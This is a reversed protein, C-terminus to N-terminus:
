PRGAVATAGIAESACCRHGWKWGLLAIPVDLRQLDGDIAVMGVAGVCCAIENRYVGNWTKDLTLARISAQLHRMHKTIGGRM